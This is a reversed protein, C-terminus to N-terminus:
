NCLPPLQVIPLRSLAVPCAPLAAQTLLFDGENDGLLLIHISEKM